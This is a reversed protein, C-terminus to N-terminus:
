DCGTACAPYSCSTESAPDAKPLPCPVMEGSRGCSLGRLYTSGQFEERQIGKGKPFALLLVGLGRDKRGM